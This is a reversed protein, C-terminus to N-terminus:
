SKDSGGAAGTRRAPRPHPVWPRDGRSENVSEVVIGDKDLWLAVAGRRWSDIRDIVPMMSRCRFGVPVQSVVADFGTCKIPLATEGTAIAVRRGRATYTCLQGACDLGNEAGSGAAPWPDFVAGIESAVFSRVIKEGKDASVFYHGDAARAAVFRGGDAILIDPPRTLAISALGAVIAVIGWRRWPGRWLCLWLGGLSILLLGEAPLRPMTWVNGPLASVHQAVWITIDIGRGMPVLALRELGFPMLLCTVVGWPLTWMASLPVAIVNALPSYLALHHFHYISYPYTGITAVVTTVVVAGCYGLVRGLASRSHFLRGLRAGYTEYVAILAVVAGFSMQFSVGVLSSPDIVLVVAAAIACVRMSIRLRDIIIAGFVLGNMVFARETPIAAGSILLYCALVILTVAAAIKKIPYRLAVPPILALGGRVAFFVFAGVLGLHLGAIALLHSLGSDRFAQKVEETIAGRKGTILASAVGGTSGPLVAAIRRSIETRLQRLDERWGSEGRPSGPAADPEAMRRAPGFTYGVGGIGAFYLERQFDRGGPLVQAPVPYLMAKLSVRDGPNLQDSSQPIHVRLRHPQDAPELGPLPDNDIVIRWGKEMLDIDVVRGNVAVPGLHRQLMPAEREWATERMLAFGGAFLTFALTAECWGSRRRLALVLALGGIAAAIGPWLPPEVKLVFYVGIGAGFFVPLWLLRREGEAALRDALARFLWARWEAVPRLRGGAIAADAM